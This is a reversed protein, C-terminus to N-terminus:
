IFDLLSLSLIQGASQLSAQLAFQQATLDTIVETLDADIELSLASRLEVDEDKLRDEIVALNQLRAGIESRGFNARDLDEELRNIENGALDIEGQELLNRLRILTDFVSSASLTHRDSSTLSGDAGATADDVFGLREAFGGAATISDPANGGTVPAAFVVPSAFTGGDTQLVAASGNSVVTHDPLEGNISAAIADTTSDSGGLNVTIVDGVVTTALGGLGENVLEVTFPRNGLPGATDATISLTDGNLTFAGTGADALHSANAGGTTDAALPGNDTSISDTGNSQVTFGALANSISLAIQDTTAAAGALDVVIADGVVSTSLSGAGGNALVQVTFARNGAQGPADADITLTDAGLTFSGSATSEPSDPDTAILTLGNGVAALSATVAGGTDISIQQILDDVTNASTPDITYTNTVGDETVTITFENQALTNADSSGEVILGVGRNFDQLRATGTYTRIGLDTATSGGNEGISFDAGSRRTRVDIGTGGVNIAALLGYEPRNLLNLLDEITEASSTDIEYTDEGNVIRLGSALDLAGDVGGNDTVGTYTAPPITGNGASTSTSADRYDPEAVFTGENNIAAAIQGATSEGAAITVTLTNTFGDYSAFELGLTAGDVVDITLNNQEDGNSVATLVLDNDTGAIELRGRSKVGVLEDIRNTNLLVPDLDSGTITAAAATGVPLGLEAASNGGAVERLTIGGDTASITLGEGSVRAYLTTGVPAAQEILRAVDSLTTAGGLDVLSSTTPESTDTPEFIIEIAANPNLGLGGNIQALRTEPTLQPNLDSIGRIEDSLGGLVDDGTASTNFLFGPEVFTQPSIEGGLYEVYSGNVVYPAISSEGGSFVHSGVFTSNGVNVLTALAQDILEVVTQRELDDTPDGIVGLADSRISNLLDSVNSLSAETSTLASKTGQLNTLSQEVREITRQLVLARQTTSPDDSPLFVRRGTSLQNQLELLTTQQFQIQSTLRNRAAGSSIRTTSIPQIRSM